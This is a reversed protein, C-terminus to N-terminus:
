LILTYLAGISVFDKLKQYALPKKIEKLKEEKLWQIRVFKPAILVKRNVEYLYTQIQEDNGSFWRELHGQDPENISTSARNAKSRKRPSISSSM